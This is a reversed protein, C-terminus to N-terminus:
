QFHINDFNKLSNAIFQSSRTTFFVPLFLMDLLFNALFCFKTLSLFFILTENLIVFVSDFGLFIQAIRKFGVKQEHSKMQSYILNTM